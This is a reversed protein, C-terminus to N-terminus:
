IIYLIWSVKKFCTIALSIYILRSSIVVNQEQFVAPLLFQQQLVRARPSRYKSTCISSFGTTCSSVLTTTAAALAVAVVLFLLLSLLCCFSSVRPPLTLGFPIDQSGLSFGPPYPDALQISRYFRNRTTYWRVLIVQNWNTPCFKTHIYHPWREIVVSLFRALTNLFQVM